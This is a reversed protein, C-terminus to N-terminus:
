MGTLFFRWAWWLLLLFTGSLTVIQMVLAERSSQRAPRSVADRQATALAVTVFELGPAATAIRTFDAKATELVATLQRDDRLWRLTHPQTTFWRVYDPALDFADALMTVAAKRNEPTDPLCDATEVLAMAQLPPSRRTVKCLDSLAVEADDYQKLARDARHLAALCMAHHEARVFPLLTRADVLGAQAMAQAEAPMNRVLMVTALVAHAIVSRERTLSLALRATGAAEDYRNLRLLALACNGLTEPDACVEMAELASVLALDPQGSWLQALTRRNLWVLRRKGQWASPGTVALAQECIKLATPYKGRRMLADVRAAPSLWRALRLFGFWFVVGLLPLGHGPHALLVSLGLPLAVASLWLAALGITFLHSHDRIPKM